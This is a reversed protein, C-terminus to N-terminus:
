ENKKAAKKAAAKKKPAKSKAEVKKVNSVHISGEREEFGGQPNTQTPRTSKKIMNVGEVVVRDSKTLIQLIKGQRGKHAGAIVQVEDGSKVHFKTNM